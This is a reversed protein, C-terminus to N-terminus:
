RNAEPDVLELGLADLYGNVYGADYARAYVDNHKSYIRRQLAEYYSHTLGMTRCIEEPTTDVSLQNCYNQLHYQLDFNNKEVKEISNVFDEIFKRKISDM